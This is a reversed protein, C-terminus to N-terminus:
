PPALPVDGIQPNAGMNRCIWSSFNFALVPPGTGNGWYPESTRGDSNDPSNRHRYPETSCAKRYREIKNTHIAKSTRYAAICYSLISFYRSLPFVTLLQHAPRSRPMAVLPRRNRDPLNIRLKQKQFGSLCSNLLKNFIVWNAQAVGNLTTQPPNLTQATESELFCM